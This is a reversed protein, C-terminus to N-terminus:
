TLLKQIFFINKGHGFPTTQWNSPFRAIERISQLPELLKILSFVFFLITNQCKGKALPSWYKKQPSTANKLHKNQDFSIQSSFFFHFSKVMKKSTKAPTKPTTDAPTTRPSKGPFNPYQSTPASPEVSKLFKIIEKKLSIRKATKRISKFHKGLIRSNNRKLRALSKTEM